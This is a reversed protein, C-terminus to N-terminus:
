VYNSNVSETQLSPVIKMKSECDSELALAFEVDNSLINLNPSVFLSSQDDDVPAIAITELNPPPSLLLEPIVDVICNSTPLVPTEQIDDPQFL